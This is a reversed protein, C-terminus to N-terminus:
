RRGTASRARLRLEDLFAPASQLERERAVPAEGLPRVRTDILEFTGNAGRVMWRGFHANWGLFLVYERGQALPEVGLQRVTVEDNSFEGALQHVILKRAKNLSLNGKFEEVVHLRVETIPRPSSSGTSLQVNTTVVRARVVAVAENWMADFSAPQVEHGAELEHVRPKAPAGATAACAFTLTFLVIVPLTPRPPM